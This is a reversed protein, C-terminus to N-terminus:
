VGTGGGMRREQELAAYGATRRPDDQQVGKGRVLGLRRALRLCGLM